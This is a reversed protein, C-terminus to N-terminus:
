RARKCNYINWLKWSKVIDSLNNKFKDIKKIAQIHRKQKIYGKFVAQIKEACM